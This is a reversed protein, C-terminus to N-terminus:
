DLFDLYMDTAFAPDHHSSVHAMNVLNVLLKQHKFQVKSPWTKLRKFELIYELSLSPPKSKATEMSDDVIPPNRGSQRTHHRTNAPDQPALGHLEPQLGMPTELTSDVTDILNLPPSVVPLAEVSANWAQLSAEAESVIQETRGLLISCSKRKEPEEQLMDTVPGLLVRETVFDDQRSSRRVSTHSERVVELKNSGDHFM